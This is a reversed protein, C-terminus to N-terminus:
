AVLRRLNKKEVITTFKKLEQILELLKEKPPEPLRHNGSDAGINVQEPRCSLIMESFVSPTFDMVPEITIMKQGQWKELVRLRDVPPPANSIDHRYIDSEVTACLVSRPPYQFFPIELARTPNKTHWLWFNQPYERAKQSIKAIWEWPVEPAFLDCGSCVFISNNKGLNANLEKQDLHLPKQTQGWRGVYCYLCNYPCKGRVPNWTHTVFNYMNGKAKNLPMSDGGYVIWLTGRVKGRIYRNMIGACTETPPHSFVNVALTNMMM